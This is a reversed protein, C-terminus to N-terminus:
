FDAATKGNVEGNQGTAKPKPRSWKLVYTEDDERVLAMWVGKALEPTDILTNLYAKGSKEGFAARAFGVEIDTGKRYVRFDPGEGVKEIPRYELEYSNMLTTATGTFTGNEHKTFTGLNM